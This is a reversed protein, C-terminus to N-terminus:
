DGQFENILRQLAQEVAQRDDALNAQLLGAEVLAASLRAEDVELDIVIRAAKRRQRYERSWQAVQVAAATM